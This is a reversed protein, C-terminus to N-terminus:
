GIKTKQLFRLITKQRFKEILNWFPIENYLKNGVYWIMEMILRKEILIQEVIKKEKIEM